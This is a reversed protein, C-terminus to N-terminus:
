CSNPTRTSCSAPSAAAAACATGAPTTRGYRRPPPAPRAGPPQAPAAPHHPARHAPGQGRRAPGPAQRTRPRSGRGTDPATGPAASGPHVAASRHPAHPRRAAPAPGAPRHRRRAARLRGTPHGHDHPQGHRRGRAPRSVPRDAGVAMARRTLASHDSRCEPMGTQQVTVFFRASATGPSPPAPAALCRRTSGFVSVRGVRLSYPAERKRSRM